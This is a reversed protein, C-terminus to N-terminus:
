KTRITVAPSWLTVPEFVIARVPGAFYLTVTVPALM